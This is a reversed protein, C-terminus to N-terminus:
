KIRKFPSVVGLREYTEPHSLLHELDAKEFAKGCIPCPEGNGWALIGTIIETM